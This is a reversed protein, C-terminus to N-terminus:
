VNKLEEQFNAEQLEDLFQKFTKCKLTQTLVLLCRDCIYRNCGRCYGRERQRAPNVIAVDPCHSCTLTKTEFLGQRAILPVSPAEDESLGPSFRHDILLYGEQSRKSKM